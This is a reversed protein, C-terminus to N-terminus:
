ATQVRLPSGTPGLKRSQWFRDNVIILLYKILISVFKCIHCLYYKKRYISSLYFLWFFCVAVGLFWPQPSGDIMILNSLDEWPTAWIKFGVSDLAGQKALLDACKNATRQVLFFHVSWDRHVLEHIQSLLAAELHQPLINLM